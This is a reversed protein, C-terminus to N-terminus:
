KKVVLSIVALVVATVILGIIYNVNKRTTGYESNVWEKTAIDHELKQKIEIIDQSIRDVKSVIIGVTVALENNTTERKM